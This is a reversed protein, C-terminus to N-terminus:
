KSGFGIWVTRITKILILLDLWISFYRIYYFDYELKEQAAAVEAVNGQHVAAWGTIGPRVAHRYDYFPVHRAYNRALSLAEPRPGIWSMEGRLVNFIQPLEDIRWKRLYKGLRTIRPDTDVTFAPGEVDQRMTQLKYCTFPQGRHGMRTQRFIVKGQSELRIAIATLVLLPLVLPLAVLVGLLDFVRKLRLYLLSPLLAGFDNDAHHSFRVKGNLGEEIHARHYVPVGQLVLQTIFRSWELSLEAHPDVVVASVRRDLWPESLLLWTVQGPLDKAFQPEVGIMGIVPRLHRGRLTAMAFYWGIAVVFSSAYHLRAVPLNAVYMAFLGAGFSALLTPVILSRAMVLPLVGIRQISLHALAIALTSVILTPEIQGALLGAWYVPGVRALHILEPVIVALLLAMGLVFRNSALARVFRRARGSFHTFRVAPQAGIVPRHEVRVELNLDIDLDLGAAKCLLDDLVPKATDERTTRGM